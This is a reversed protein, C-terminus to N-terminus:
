ANNVINVIRQDITFTGDANETMSDRLARYLGVAYELSDYTSFNSPLEFRLGRENLELLSVIPKVCEDADLTHSGSYGLQISVHNREAHVQLYPRFSNRQGDESIVFTKDGGFDRTCSVHVKHKEILPALISDVSAGSLRLADRIRENLYSHNDLDHLIKREAFTIFFLHRGINIAKGTNFNWGAKYNSDARLESLDSWSSTLVAADSYSCYLIKSVALNRVWIPVRKQLGFAFAAISFATITIGAPVAISLMSFGSNRVVCTNHSTLVSFVSITCSCALIYALPFWATRCYLLFRYFMGIKRYAPKQPRHIRRLVVRAINKKRSMRLPATVVTRLAGGFAYVTNLTGRTAVKKILKGCFHLVLLSGGTLVIFQISSMTAVYLVVMAWSHFWNFSFTEVIGCSFYANHASAYTQPVSVAFGVLGLLLSFVVHIKDWVTFSRTLKSLM